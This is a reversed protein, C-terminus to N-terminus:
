LYPSFLKALGDRLREVLSRADMDWLSIERSATIALEVKEGMVRFFEEDYIEMNVEFNLRLSRPDLNATGILSWVGDVLFLKTHVFPPPQYFIRIGHQLLEWLYARSAWHVVPLNNRAPLILRVRVGRLATTTLAAIMSRDPIFYPTVIDVTERASSLAGMIISHLKRFEKDPGDGIVRALAHGAPPLQPFLRQDDELRGTVFFWDELFLRQLDAVVPGNVRFHLDMVPEPGGSRNVMHRDGINMGGTFATEGDVVLIKRHNRLNIYVGQRLPLFRGLTVTSGKLLTRARPRSYKEGLADIIVRVVVGRQAASKLADVFRIGSADGDFIYTCLHISHRANNIAELMSPYAEEGNVLPTLRNGGLLETSVVSDALHRLDALHTGHSPLEIHGTVPQPNFSEAGSIFRGKDHWEQAKRRIWNVGLSWYFVPGLLPLTLCIWLWILSSRPDRKYILAHCASAVSLGMVAALLLTVFIDDTIGPLFNVM